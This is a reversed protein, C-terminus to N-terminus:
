GTPGRPGAPGGAALAGLRTSACGLSSLGASRLGPAFGFGFGTTLDSGRGAGCAATTGGGGGGTTTAAIQRSHATISSTRSTSFAPVPDPAPATPPATTPPTSPWWIPPPRPLSTAVTRPAKPPPKAPFAISFFAFFVTSYWITM